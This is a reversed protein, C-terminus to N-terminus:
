RQIVLQQAAGEGCRVVYTGAPLDSVNMLEARMGPRVTQRKWERGDMGYVVVDEGAQLGFLTVHDRAPNPSMAFALAEMEPADMVYEDIWVAAATETIIPAGSIPTDVTTINILAALTIPYDASMFYDGSVTVEYTGLFTSDVLVETMQIRYVDEYYVEGPLGLTGSSICESMVSGTRYVTIGATGYECAFTDESTDGISFPFPWYVETDDYAVVLAGQTGGHYEYSDGYSYYTDQGDAQIAIDSGAFVKGNPTSAVSVFSAAVSTAGWDPNFLYTLDYSQGPGGTDNTIEAFADVVKQVVTEGAEPSPSQLQGFALFPAITAVIALIRKMRFSNLNALPIFSYCFRRWLPPTM